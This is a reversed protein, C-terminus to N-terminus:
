FIVAKFMSNVRKPPVVIPTIPEIIKSEMYKQIKENEYKMKEDVEEEEDIAKLVAKRQRKLLSTERGKKLNNKLKELHVPDTIPGKPRGRGRKVKQKVRPLPSEARPEREVRKSDQDDEEDASNIIIHEIDEKNSKKEFITENM